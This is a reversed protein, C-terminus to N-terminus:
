ANLEIGGLLPPDGVFRRGFAEAVIKWVFQVNGEPGMRALDEVAIEGHRWRLTRHHHEQVTPTEAKTRRSGDGVVPARDQVM